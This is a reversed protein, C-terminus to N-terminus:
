RRMEKADTQNTGVGNAAGIGWLINSIKQQIAAAVVPTGGRFARM